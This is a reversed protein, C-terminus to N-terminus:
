LRYKHLKAREAFYLMVGRQPSSFTDRKVFIIINTM